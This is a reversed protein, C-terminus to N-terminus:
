NKTKRANRQLGALKLRRVASHRFLGAFREPTMAEVDARCLALIDDGADFEPLIAAQRRANLPCVDQCIDCGYIRGPLRLTDPLEGRHEITLYSLCRRADVSGSGDLAGGPCSEVCVNCGVCASLLSAGNPRGTGVDAIDATWLIEALFVKSGAGPVYLLGNRGFTGIGARAAWWKERLPASDTCIRTESGPVLRRMLAAVPELHARLVTHYDQGVAYDAFLASRRPGGYAFAACLMTRAGPLLGQPSFRLERNREMYEMGANRGAALWRAYIDRDGADAGNALSVPAAAAAGADLAASVIRRWLGADCPSPESNM